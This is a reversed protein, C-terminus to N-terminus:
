RFREPRVFFMKLQLNSFLILVMTQVSAEMAEMIVMQIHRQIQTTTHALYFLLQGLRLAQFLKM